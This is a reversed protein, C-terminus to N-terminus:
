RGRTGYFYAEENQDTTKSIRDKTEIMTETTFNDSIFDFKEEGLSMMQSEFVRLKQKLKDSLNVIEEYYHLSLEIEHESAKQKTGLIGGLLSRKKTGSYISYIKMYKDHLTILISEIDELVLQSNGMSFRMAQHYYWRGFESDTPNLAITDIAIDIGSVLLKISNVWRIHATRAQNLYHISKDKNTM